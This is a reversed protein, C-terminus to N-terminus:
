ENISSDGAKSLPSSLVLKECCGLRVVEDVRSEKELEWAIEEDELKKKSRLTRASKRRSKEQLRISEEM